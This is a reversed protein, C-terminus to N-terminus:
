TSFQIWEEIYNGLKELKKNNYGYFEINNRIAAQYDNISDGILITKNKSYNNEKIINKILINKKTPSGKISLFFKDIKLYKCLDNLEKDEAGSVIHFNYKQYNKEIFKMTDQILNDQSYLKNKIINAFENAIKNVENDTINKSLLENFFYRIKEFRSIGGNAYHYKKFEEAKDISESKFLEFFGDAKIEMSDFIVGDFDWLINEIM